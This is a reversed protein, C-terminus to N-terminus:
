ICTTCYVRTGQMQVYIIHLLYKYKRTKFYMYLTCAFVPVGCVVGFFVVVKQFNTGFLHWLYIFLHM